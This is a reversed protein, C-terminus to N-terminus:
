MHSKKKKKRVPNFPPKGQSKNDAMLVGGLTVLLAVANFTLHFQLFRQVKDFIGRGWKVQHSIPHSTDNLIFVISQIHINSRRGSM